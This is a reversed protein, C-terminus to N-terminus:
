LASCEGCRSPTTLSSLKCLSSRAAFGAAGSKLGNSMHTDWRSRRAHSLTHMLSHTCSLTHAHSLTHTHAHSHTHTHMLTHTHGVKLMSRVSEVERQETQTCSYVTLAADDHQGLSFFLTHVLRSSGDGAFSAADGSTTGSEAAVLDERQRLYLKMKEEEVMGELANATGRSARPSIAGESKAMRHRQQLQTNMIM